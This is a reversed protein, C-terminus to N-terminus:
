SRLRLFGYDDDVVRTLEWGQEKLSKVHDIFAHLKDVVEDLTAAGDITWKARLIYEDREDNEDEETHDGNEAAVAAEAFAPDMM